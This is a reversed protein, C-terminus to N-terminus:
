APKRILGTYAAVTLTALAWVLAQLAWLLYTFAQGKRSSTDLDCRARLGTAGLPLGRDIGLGILEATSCPVGAATTPTTPPTVREAAHHDPRTPVQGATYGTAGALLLVTLLATVLRHARYGYRGLRGWLRHRARALHGGLADPARRRLDDQQTILIHRANNDHGAAREVAALQQYPQPLYGPTHHVLLHLWQRWSIGRLQPFVLGHVVLRRSSDPCPRPGSTRGARPCVLVAPLFLAADVTAETLVLLPGSENTLRTGTLDAQGGIHASLLRLAGDEGSGTLNADRLFLIGDTRVRDAHLAPGTTNTVATRDLDLQGGIHASLLRLAGNEGSGTLNADRLFLPGDTRVGDAGLAPGTTNTVATRDLDLQGGIHAGLLRLAGLEGSGTLHAGDLSLIGDTRVGDAHLAPGTTNTVTTRDLVLQGGIHAGLLRLAGDEGSGTLHAGDLFLDSDTRVRDAHLAPGTTNTVATRDLDLQGGIHAGLLRLAGLEGSGTLHAGGLSLDGDTRVSVADVATITSHRLDVQRLRAHRCTIGDPLSCAFLALGTVAVVHDLDLKGVVRVGRILVGRPDLEGRRGMLLERILEARVRLGPDETDALQEPTLDTDPRTWTGRCAAAIVAEEVPSLNDLVPPTQSDSM